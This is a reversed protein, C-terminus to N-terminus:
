GSESGDPLAMKGKDSLYNSYDLPAMINDSHHDLYLKHVIDQIPAFSPRPASNVIFQRRRSASFTLDSSLYENGM